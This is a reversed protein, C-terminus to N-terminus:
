RNATVIRPVRTIHRQVSFSDPGERNEISIEELRSVVGVDLDGNLRVGVDSARRDIKLTRDAFVYCNRMRLPEIPRRMREEGRRSRQRWGKGGQRGEQAKEFLKEFRFGRNESM